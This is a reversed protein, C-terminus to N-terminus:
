VKVIMIENINTTYRPSLKEQNMKWTKKLDQSALKIKKQGLSDNIFDVAEFLKKHKPNDTTFISLQKPNEPVIDMVIVGAKKYSYGEKFISKLAINAYKVLDFASNTSYPLNIVSNRSYQQLDERFPNTLVFVMIVNCCSKQKRLKESCTAAFTSVRERLDEYKTYMKEFSRTTAISQKKKSEELFLSEKGELDKKLRLGVVSMNNKVWADSQSIFDYATNIGLRQFKKSYQRGIGWVDEVKLWKLAKVRKEENDIIYVGKTREPFKKAIKNAVKSLAKTEAFGVSIPIGTYRFVTKRIEEGIKQLDFLQFGDFKLFAEDISYIEFDPCFKMLTNMVRKSMDGYLAYNSSFVHVNNKLFIDKHKFAPAGMQIGLAKAENSRAIVCGDNNSLVVIPKGNLEPRFVRECSAYFNNCDVLAYM